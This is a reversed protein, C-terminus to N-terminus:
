VHVPKKCISYTYPRKPRGQSRSLREKELRVIEFFVSEGSFAWASHWLEARNFLLELFARFEGLVQCSVCRRCWVEWCWPAATVGRYPSNFQIRRGQSALTCLM